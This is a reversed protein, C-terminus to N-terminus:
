GTQRVLEAGEPRGGTKTWIRVNLGLDEVIGTIARLNSLIKEIQGSDALSKSMAPEFANSPMDIAMFLRGLFFSSQFAGVKSRLTKLREMLSLTMVYRAELQDTSTVTFLRNFEPDELAVHSGFLKSIFNVAYPRVLTRGSFHKNFDAVFFLGQFITRCKTETHTKGDSDTHSDDYEEEAHVLSFKVKTEGIYGEVLDKGSYRDPRMYLSSENFEDKGVFGEVRYTLSPDIGALLIPMVEKKFARKVKGLLHNSVGVGSLVGFVLAVIMAITNGTFYFYAAAGGAVVAIGALGLKMKSLNGLRAEELRDLTLALEQPVIM